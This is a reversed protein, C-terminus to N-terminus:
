SQLMVGHTFSTTVDDHFCPMRGGRPSWKMTFDHTRGDVKWPISNSQVPRLQQSTPWLEMPLSRLHLIIVTAFM